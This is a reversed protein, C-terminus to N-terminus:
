DLYNELGKVPYSIQVEVHDAKEILFIIIEQSNKIFYLRKSNSFFDKDRLQYGINAFDKIVVNEVHFISGLENKNFFIRRGGYYCARYSKTNFDVNEFAANRMLIKWAFPSIEGEHFNIYYIHFGQWLIIMGISAFIFSIIYKRFKKM